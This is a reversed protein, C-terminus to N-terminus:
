KKKKARPKSKTKPEPAAKPKPLQAMIHKPLNKYDIGSALTKTRGNWDVVCDEKLKM